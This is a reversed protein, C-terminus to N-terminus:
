IYYTYTIIYSLSLGLFILERNSYKIPIPTPRLLASMFKLFGKLVVLITFIFIFFFIINYNINYM